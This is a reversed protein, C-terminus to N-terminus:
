PAVAEIPQLDGSIVLSGPQVGTTALALPNVQLVWPGPASQPVSFIASGTATQGTAVATEPFLKISDIASIGAMLDFTYTAGSADVLEFDFMTLELPAGDVRVTVDCQVWTMGAEPAGLETAPVVGCSAFYVSDGVCVSRYNIDAESAPVQDPSTVAWGITDCTGQADQAEFPSVDGTVSLTSAGAQTSPDPTTTTTPGTTTAGGALLASIAAPDLENFAGVGDIQFSQMASNLEGDFNSAESILVQVRFEGPASTVDAYALVVVPVGSRDATHLSYAIQSPLVERAVQQVNTAGFSSFFGENFQDLGLGADGSADGTTAYGFVTTPANASSFFAIENPTSSAEEYTWNPGYAVTATNVVVSQGQGTTGTATTPTEQVDQTPNLPPLTLGGSTTTPTTGAEPTTLPPLTLGGTSTPTETPAGTQGTQGGSELLAALENPDFGALPSGTGNVDIGQQVASIGLDFSGAPAILMVIVVSGPVASTNATTLMGFPIGAQNVSYLRWANGPDVVEGALEQQNQDGFSGFFGMAFQDIAMGPDTISPDAIEGYMFMTTPIDRHVLFVSTPDAGEPDFEWSDDFSITATGATQPSAAQGTTTQAAAQMVSALVTLLVLLTAFTVRVGRARKM